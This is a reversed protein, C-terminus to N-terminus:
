RLEAWTLITGTGSFSYTAGPPVVSIELTQLVTQSINSNWGDVDVGSVTAKLAPVTTSGTYAVTAILRVSIPRGTNNTYSTGIARSGTMNQWSQGVGGLMSGALAAPTVATNTSAGTQTTATSALSGQVYATSAVQTSNDGATPTPVTTGSPLALAGSGPLTLAM